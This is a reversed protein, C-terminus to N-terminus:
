AHMSASSHRVPSQRAQQLLGLRLVGGAGSQRTDPLQLHQLFPCLALYALLQRDQSVTSSFASALAWQFALLEMVMVMVM